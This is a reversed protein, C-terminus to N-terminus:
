RRSKSSSLDSSTSITLIAALLVGPSFFVRHRRRAPGFRYFTGIIVLFMAGLMLWKGFNIWFREAGEKDVMKSLVYESGIMMFLAAFVFSPISITLVVFVVLIYDPWRNKYLAALSGFTIGGVAAFMIAFIGLLASVPFHEKIISNVSRNQQTFSIGFDGKLMNGLYILYQQYLPKDLGYKAELNKRIEASMAKDNALPNGPVSHMAVFTASAIFWITILGYALRKIIYARM